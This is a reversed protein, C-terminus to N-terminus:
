RSILQQNEEWILYQVSRLGLQPGTKIKDKILGRISRWVISSVLVLMPGGRCCLEDDHGERIIVRFSDFPDRKDPTREGLRLSWLPSSIRPRRHQKRGTLRRTVTKVPFRTRFRKATRRLLRERVFKRSVVRRTDTHYMPWPYLYYRSLACAGRPSSGRPPCIRSSSCSSSSSSVFFLLFLPPLLFSSLVLFTFLSLPLFWSTFASLYEHVIWTAWCGAPEPVRERRPGPLRSGTLSTETKAEMPEMRRFEETTWGEEVRKRKAKERGKKRGAQGKSRTLADREGGIHREDIAIKRSRGRQKRWGAIRREINETRAIKPRM